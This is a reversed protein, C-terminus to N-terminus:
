VTPLNRNGWLYLGLGSSWSYRASVLASGVYLKTLYRHYGCQGLPAGKLPNDEDEEDDDDIEQLRAHAAELLYDSLTKRNLATSETAATFLQRIM